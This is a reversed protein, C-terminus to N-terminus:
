GKSLWGRLEKVSRLSIAAGMGLKGKSYTEVQNINYMCLGRAESEISVDEREKAALGRWRM